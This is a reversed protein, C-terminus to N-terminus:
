SIVVDYDLDTVATGGRTVQARLRPFYPNSTQQVDAGVATQAAFTLLDKWVASAEPVSMPSPSHQIKGTISPTTGTLGRIILAGVLGGPRRESEVLERTDSTLGSTNDLSM